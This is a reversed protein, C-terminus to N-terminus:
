SLRGYIGVLHRLRAALPQPVQEWDFRWSWNNSNVTGPINMRADSDLQLLDQMPVVALQAVSRLASQILTWPMATETLAYYDRLKGETEASLQVYWGCSTDNDHTGTYVVCNPDHNHPLYPNSADSDFAFQLIKMGPLHFKQRLTDVDPTITGLDEAIWPLEGFDSQLHGLLEEGPSAVWQGHEATENEAPIVWTAAFGRFHDVRLVDVLHQQHDVRARWWSFGTSRMHEWAYQPNGWHQGTACFYDPPVGAVVAPEGLKNLQFGEPYAWVDASDHSVFFPLDGVLSVNREHAYNRLDNWQQFFVFQEFQIYLMEEALRGEAAALATPDRRKLTEPWQTWAVGNAEYRLVTFLAFDQLWYAHQDVFATFNERQEAAEQEQVCRCAKRLLKRRSLGAVYIDDSQLWGIDVLMDLDILEPNGAFASTSQYPSRDAGTPGLPLMQWVSFGAAALFDVFNRAERGIEGFARPGPLSIPHLLVGAGRRTMLSQM